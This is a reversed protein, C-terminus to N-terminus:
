TRKEKALTLIIVTLLILATGLWDLGSFTVNLWLVATLAAALPEVSCLLSAFTAGIITVSRLFFYFAM